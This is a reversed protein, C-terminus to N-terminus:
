ANTKVKPMGRLDLADIHVIRLDIFEVGEEDAVSRAVASKGTGPPGWMFLPRRAKYCARIAEAAGKTNVKEVM